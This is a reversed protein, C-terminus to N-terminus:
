FFSLVKLFVFGEAFSIECTEFDAPLPSVTFLNTAQFSVQVNGQIFVSVLLDGHRAQSCPRLVFDRPPFDRAYLAIANHLLYVEVGDPAQFRINETLFFSIPLANEPTFLIPLRDALCIDAFREFRDTIGFYAGGVHLACPRSSLFYIKM